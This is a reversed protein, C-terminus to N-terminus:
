VRRVRCSANSTKVLWKQAGGLPWAGEESPSHVYLPIMAVARMARQAAPNDDLRMDRRIWWIAGSAM